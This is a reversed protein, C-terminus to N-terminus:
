SVRPAGTRDRTNWQSLLVDEAGPAPARGARGSHQRVELRGVVRVNHGLEIGCPSHDQALRVHVLKRHARRVLVRVETGDLVGPILGSHRAAARPSRSGGDRRTERGAGGPGIGAARYALRGRKGANAPELRGVPDDRAVSHDSKGRAEILPPRHGAVSLIKGQHQIDHGPKVCTIRSRELALALVVRAREALRNATQLDAQRPLKEGLARRWRHHLGHIGCDRLEALEAALCDLDIQGVHLQRHGNVIHERRRLGRAIEGAVVAHAVAVPGRFVGVQRVHVLLGSCLTEACLDLPADQDPGVHERVAIVVCIVYLRLFHAPQDRPVEGLREPFAVEDHPRGARGRCEPDSLLGAVRHLHIKRIDVGNGDIERAKGAHRNWAAEIARTQRDSKLDDAVIEVLRPHEVGRM